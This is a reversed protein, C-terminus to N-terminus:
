ANHGTAEWSTEELATTAIVSCSYASAEVQIEQLAGGLVQIQIKLRGIERQLETAIAHYPNLRM